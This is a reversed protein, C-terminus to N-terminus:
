DGTGKQKTNIIKYFIRIFIFTDVIVWLFLGLNICGIIPFICVNIATIIEKLFLIFLSLITVVASTFIIKKNFSILRGYSSNKKMESIVSDSNQIILTLIVLLFGFLAICITLIRDTFDKGTIFEWAKYHKHCYFFFAVGFLMGLFREIFYLPSKNLGQVYRQLRNQM